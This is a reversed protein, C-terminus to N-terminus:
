CPSAAREASRRSTAPEIPMRAVRIGGPGRRRARPSGIPQGATRRTPILWMASSTPSTSSASAHYPRKKSNSSRPRAPVAIATMSIPSWNMAFGRRCFSMNGQSSRPHGARNAVDVADCGAGSTRAHLQGSRLKYSVALPHREVRASPRPTRRRVLRVTDRSRPPPRESGSAESPPRQYPEAGRRVGFTWEHTWGMFARGGMLRRWSPRGRAANAHDCCPTPPRPAEVGLLRLDSADIREYAM